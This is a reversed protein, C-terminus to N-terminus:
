CSKSCFTSFILVKVWTVLFYHEIMHNKGSGEFVLFQTVLIFRQVGEPKSPASDYLM